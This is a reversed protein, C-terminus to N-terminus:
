KCKHNHIHWSYYIYLKTACQLSCLSADTQLHWRWRSSSSSSSSHVAQRMTM